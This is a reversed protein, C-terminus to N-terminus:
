SKSFQLLRGDQESKRIELLKEERWNWFKKYLKLETGEDM